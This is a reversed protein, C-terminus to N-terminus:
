NIVETIDDNLENDDVIEKFGTWLGNEREGKAKKQWDYTFAVRMRKLEDKLNVKEPYRACKVLYM